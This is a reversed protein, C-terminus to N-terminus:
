TVGGGSITDNLYEVFKISSSGLNGQELSGAV